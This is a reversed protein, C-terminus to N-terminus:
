HAIGQHCDICTKDRQKMARHYRRVARDQVSFDMQEVLHCNRCEQSDNARLRNLEREAMVPQHAAYKEPTDIVGTWHGWVERSAEIKRLMKPVFEKPIHCDSCGVSVGHANSHHATQELATRPAEMEHCSSGCFEDTSTFHMVGDYAAYAAVGLVLGAVLTVLGARM